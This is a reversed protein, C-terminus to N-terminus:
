FAARLLAALDAPQCPRPNALHSADEWAKEALLPLQSEKVGADRLREPIGIERALARVREVARRALRDRDDSSPEGLAVAVEALAAGAHPLNFEMVHPLVIANALGHHVGAVPTLAHALAHSAGLGKQFAAAGTVAAIMMGARAEEDHGDRVARALHRGCLELGKHAMADALPHFGKACLAELNHTLADMGTAATLKPPLAYTLEPDCVAVSPMLPPAFVVTKRGTEALTVVFSRGVESGTGATTPIAIMPPVPNTVLRGGDKADDYQALPGPHTALLRVGKAADLPSGGGLGIVGDCGAARYAALGRLVTDGTPNAEVTDFTAFPVHAADLVAGLRGALGAAVVGADTVLLPHKVGLRALHSPVEKLAGKGFVIRTPFSFESIM